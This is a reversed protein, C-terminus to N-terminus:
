SRYLMRPLRDTLIQIGSDTILVDDEIRIGIAEDAIYIGPEVTIVMGPQLPEHYDGIDHVNLGLFHSTAHPFYQRVNEHTIKKILGLQQLKEGMYAEIKEENDKIFSGPKILEFGFKQVDLVADYIAQQRNTPLSSSVTRTIDAAYHEVEAGVDVVILQEAHLRDNNAVNHLTCANLGGAVIPEFAHGAAGLYRFGRTIDAELQYEYDYATLCAATTLALLTDITTDIASQVAVLEEPQKIVRLSAMHAAIDITERVGHVQLESALTLRAPNVYMGYHEIYAPAPALTAVIGAKLELALQKWGEQRGVVRTIGSVTSLTNTNVAGDFVERNDDREPVILYEQDGYMVLLIDPEEIGTLYWFNADQAFAYTSDAGRQLLGNATIVIPDATACLTRLARRNGMFFNPTFFSKM